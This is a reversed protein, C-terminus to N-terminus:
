RKRGTIVLEISKITFRRRLPLEKPSDVGYVSLIDVGLFDLAIILEQPTFFRVPGTYLKEEVVARWEVTSSVPDFKEDGKWAQRYANLTSIILRGGHKMARVLKKLFLLDNSLSGVEGLVSTYLNLVADFEENYDMQLGDMVIFEIELKEREAKQKAIEIQHPSIDIGTVKFGRKAFEIAHRGSGCGVDLVKEGRSLSLEEIIFDVEYPASEELTKNILTYEEVYKQNLWPNDM